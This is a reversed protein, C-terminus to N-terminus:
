RVWIKYEAYGGPGDCWVEDYPSGMEILMRKEIIECWEKSHYPM